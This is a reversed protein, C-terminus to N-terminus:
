CFDEITFDFDLTLKQLVFSISKQRPKQKRM